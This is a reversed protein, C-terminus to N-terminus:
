FILGLDLVLLTHLHGRASGLTLGAPHSPATLPEQSSLSSQSCLAPVYSVGSGKRSSIFALRPFPRAEWSSPVAQAPSPPRRGAEVHDPLHRETAVRRGAQSELEQHESM